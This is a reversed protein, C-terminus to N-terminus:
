DKEINKIKVSWEQVKKNLNLVIAFWFFTLVGLVLVTTISFFNILIFFLVLFLLALSLILSSTQKHSIDLLLILHHIHNKDAKFPSHGNMIRSFYVRLSDLVPLLFIGIVVILIMPQNSTVLANSKEIINIGSVVLVFGMFLAGGDGLFIKDKSLNFRLFGLTAGILAVFLILYVYDSLIFSLISLISFGVIGFGGALGDIGDMLNFANVVGTVIILTFFYQWIISIEHIGFIGYFSTIRNGTSAIAFACGLQIILRYIPNVDMRDDILGTFMLVIGAGLTVAVELVGSIFTSSILLALMASLVIAIGGVLPVPKTHIKRYNPKDVLGIRIAIKKLVPIFILTLTLAMTCTLLLESFLNM